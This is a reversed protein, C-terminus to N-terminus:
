SQEERLRGAVRGLLVRALHMRMASSVHVDDSPELDDALAAQASAIATADLSRGLLAVEAQRARIPTPGASLFAIRIDRVLEADFSAQIGLGVIAYDGRRQALEDFACRSGLGAVPLRMGTLIDGPELATEYLGKFYADAPISVAGQNGDIEIIADLALMMAPFEAAPDALALSGGLTGRNRIAPHAVFAAAQRLLPAHRAVDPHTLIEAHRTLAGLHLFGDEVAIGRM